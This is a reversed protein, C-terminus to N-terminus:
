KGLLKYAYKLAQIKRKPESQIAQNIVKVMKTERDSLSKGILGELKLAILIEALIIKTENSGLYPMLSKLVEQFKQERELSTPLFELETEQIQLALSAEAAEIFEDEDRNM